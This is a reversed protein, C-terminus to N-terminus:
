KQKAAIQKNAEEESIKRAAIDGSYIGCMNWDDVWSRLKGDYKQIPGDNRDRILINGDDYALYYEYM